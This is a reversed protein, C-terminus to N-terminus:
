ARSVRGWKVAGNKVSFSHGRAMKQQVADNSTRVSNTISPSARKVSIVLNSSLLHFNLATSLHGLLSSDQPVLVQVEHDVRNSTWLYILYM